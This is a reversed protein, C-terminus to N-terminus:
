IPVQLGSAQGQASGGLYDRWHGTLVCGKFIPLRVSAHPAGPALKLDQQLCEWFGGPPHQAEPGPPPRATVKSNTNMPLLLM